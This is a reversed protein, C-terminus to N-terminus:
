LIADPVISAVVQYIIQNLQNLTIQLPREEIFRREKQCQEEQEQRIVRHLSALSSSNECHTFGIYHEVAEDNGRGSRAIKFAHRIAREIRSATSQNMEGISYYLATYKPEQWEDKDLLIVADVIYQFGKIKAPVGMKLLVKEVYKRDM